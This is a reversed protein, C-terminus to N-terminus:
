FILKILGFIIFAIGLLLIIWKMYISAKESRGSKFINLGKFALFNLVAFWTMMGLILSFIFSCYYFNGVRRWLRIVTGSLGLWLTPTMPNSLTLIFGSWFPYSNQSSVKHKNQKDMNKLNNYEMAVLVFGSIIWFLAATKKNHHLLRSLGCNILVLYTIDATIAGLSVIFGQKFGKSITRNVSEIAAPGLPISIAIGTTFGSILAKILLLLHTM